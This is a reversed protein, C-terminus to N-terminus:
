ADDSLHDLVEQPHARADSVTYHRLVRGDPGIVVTIRKPHSGPPDGTAGYARALTKDIDCLLPFPFAFRARFARNDEATDFSAGLIQM